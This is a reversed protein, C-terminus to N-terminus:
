HLVPFLDIQNQEVNSLEIIHTIKIEAYLQILNRHKTNQIKEFDSICIEKNFFFFRSVSNKQPFRLSHAFAEIASRKIRTM